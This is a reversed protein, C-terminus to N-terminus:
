AELAELAATDAGDASESKLELDTAEGTLNVRKEYRTAIDIRIRRIATLLYPRVNMDPGGGGQLVRLLRAFAESVLDEAASQSGFQRAYRTVAANHRTWLEAYTAKVAASGADNV